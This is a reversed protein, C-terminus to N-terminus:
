QARSVSRREDMLGEKLRQPHVVEDYRDAIQRRLERGAKPACLLAIGAGLALGLGLGGAQSAFRRRPPQRLAYLAQQVLDRSNPMAPLNRAIEALPAFGAGLAMGLGLSGAQSAFRRRPPQRLAYLAQQVFSDRRNTRAPLNRAIEALTM